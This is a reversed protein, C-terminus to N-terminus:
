KQVVRGGGFHDGGGWGGGSFLKLEFYMEGMRIVFFILGEGFLLKM